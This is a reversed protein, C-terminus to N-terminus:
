PVLSEVTMNGVCSKSSPKNRIGIQGETYASDSAELIKEGDRYATFTDGEINLELDLSENQWSSPVKVQSLKIWRGDVVKWFRMYNTNSNYIFLYGNEDDEARFWTDFGTNADNDVLRDVTIDDFSITFDNSELSTSCSSNLYSYAKKGNGSICARGDEISLSEKDGGEWVDLDSANDFAFSCESGVECATSGFNTIVKCYAEKVSLGMINLTLIAILAIGALILAYEVFGQGYEERKRRM